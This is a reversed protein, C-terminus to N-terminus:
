DDWVGTGDLLNRTLVVRDPVPLDPDPQRYRYWDRLAGLTAPDLEGSAPPTLFKVDILHAQLRTLEPATLPRELVMYLSSNRLTAVVTRPGPRYITSVREDECLLTQVQGIRADGASHPADNPGIHLDALIPDHAFSGAAQVPGLHWADCGLGDIVIDDPTVHIVQGLAQATDDLAFAPAAVDQARRFDVITWDGAFTSLDAHAPASAIFFATCSVSLAHLFKTM